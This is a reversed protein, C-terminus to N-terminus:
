PPKPCMLRYRCIARSPAGERQQSTWCQLGTVVAASTACLRCAVLVAVAGVAAGGM